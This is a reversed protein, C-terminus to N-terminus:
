LPKVYNLMVTTEVGANTSDQRIDPHAPTIDICVEGGSTLKQILYWRGAEHALKPVENNVPYKRLSIAGIGHGVPAMKQVAGLIDQISAMVGTQTEANLVLDEFNKQIEAIDSALGDRAEQEVVENESIEQKTLEEVVPSKAFSKARNKKRAVKKCGVVTCVLTGPESGRVLENGHDPCHLPDAPTKSRKDTVSFGQEKKQRAKDEQMKLYKGVEGETISSVAGTYGLESKMSDIQQQFWADPNRMRDVQAANGSRRAHGFSPHTINVVYSPPSEGIGITFAFPEAYDKLRQVKAKESRVIQQMQPDLCSIKDDETLAYAPNGRADSTNRHGQRYKQQQLAKMRKLVAPDKYPDVVM